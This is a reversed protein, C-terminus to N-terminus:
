NYPYVAGNGWMKRVFTEDEKPVIETHLATYCEPCYYQRLIVEQDIFM